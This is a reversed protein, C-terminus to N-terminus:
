PLIDSELPPSSPECQNLNSQLIMTTTRPLYLYLSIYTWGITTSVLFIAMSFYPYLIPIFINGFLVSTLFLTYCLILTFNKSLMLIMAVFMAGIYIIHMLLQKATENKQNLIHDIVMSTSTCELTPDYLIARVSEDYTQYQWILGVFIHGLGVLLGIHVVIFFIQTFLLDCKRTTM